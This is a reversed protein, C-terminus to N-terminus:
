VVLEAGNIWRLFRPTGFLRPGAGGVGLNLAQVGLREGLLAPFPRECFRGFTQAAGICAIYPRSPDIAPGRFRHPRLGKLWHLEYDFHGFDLRQYYDGM